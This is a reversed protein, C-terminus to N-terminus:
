HIEIEVPHTVIPKMDPLKSAYYTLVAGTVFLAINLTFPLIRDLQSLNGAIWGFPSTFLIVVVYMVAM